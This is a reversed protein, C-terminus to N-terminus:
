KKEHLIKSLPIYSAFALFLAVCFGALLKNDIYTIFKEILLVGSFYQIIYVIIFLPLVKRESRFVIRKNTFYNFTVGMITALLLAIEYGLGM